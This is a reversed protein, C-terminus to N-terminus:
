CLGELLIPQLQFVLREKKSPVQIDMSSLLQTIEGRYLYTILQLDWLYTFYVLKSVMAEM